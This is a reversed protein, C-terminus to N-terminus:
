AAGHGNVSALEWRVGQGTGDGLFRILRNQQNRNLSKVTDHLRQKPIIEPHPPLPDDIRVPWGEEEFVTLIMEQNPSPIRFAKIVNAGLRLEHRAANWRPTLTASNADDKVPPSPTRSVDKGCPRAAAQKAAERGRRLRAAEHVGAETLVFCSRASFTLEGQPEFQRGKGGPAIVERAHEVLGKCLLWRFDNRTLGLDRLTAIETAFDWCDRGLDVAYHHATLLLALGRKVRKCVTAGSHLATEKPLDM